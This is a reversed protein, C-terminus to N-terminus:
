ERSLPFGTFLGEKLIREAQHRTVKEQTGLLFDGFLLTGGSDHGAAERTLLCYHRATSVHSGTMTASLKEDQFTTGIVVEKRPM